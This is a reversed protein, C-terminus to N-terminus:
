KLYVMRKVDVNKNTQVKYIYIGSAVSSGFDNTANWVANYYGAEFHSDVLTTVKQGLVNYISITVNTAKPIDFNIETTPNFPNPYNQHVKFSAPIGVIDERIAVEGTNSAAPTPLMQVWTASGDPYRGCSTDTIQEGYTLSDVFDAKDGIIQFLGIQEGDGSLKIEAHLIGQESEKDAWIVLYGGAAITTATSNTDPILHNTPDSLDDTIYMGGIDVASAGANYIEIFDDYNGNEDTASADNSALFENIYLDSNISLSGLNNLLITGGKGIAFLRENRYRVKDLTETTPSIEQTWNEGADVSKYIKGHEGVVYVLFDNIFEVDYFDDGDPEVFVEVLSDGNAVATPSTTYIHGSSAVVIGVDGRFEVARMSMSGYDEMTSFSDIATNSVYIQGSSASALVLTSSIPWIDYVTKSGENELETWNQGGDVSKLIYGSSGGALVIDADLYHISNVHKNTAQAMPNDTFAYSTGGNTTRFIQGYSGGILGNNADIFECEYMSEPTGTALNTPYSWTTGGDTSVTMEGGGYTTLVIKNDEPLALGWFGLSPWDNLPAWNAGGDITKFWQGSGAFVYGNDVDTFNVSTATQGTGVKLTDWSTGANTTKVTHGDTGTVIITNDDIVDVARSQEYGYTFDGSRTYSAGGDISLFICNHYSVVAFTSGASSVGYLRKSITGPPFLSAVEKFTWTTGGDHTYWTSGTNGDSIVVGTDANIFSIGGDIDEGNFSAADISTQYTWDAGSNVTKLVLTDKGACYVTNADVVSLGKLNETYNATDGVETWDTGGNTTKYILGDDGCAYGTNADIFEVKEWANGSVDDVKLTLWDDGGNTTQDIRNDELVLWGTNADLFFADSFVPIDLSEKKVEWTQGFVLATVVFLTVLFMLLKKM